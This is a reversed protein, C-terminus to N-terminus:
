FDLFRLAAGLPALQPATRFRDADLHELLSPMDIYPARSPVPSLIRRRVAPLAEAIADILPETRAPDAKSRNWCVEPPLVHRLAHRMLWRSHGPRRFQEPPLSLAFELLRRDLLPFRYEIGRKVSHANWEEQFGLRGDQLFRLQTRRVGITRAMPVVLPKARRAFEPNIFWRRRMGWGRRWRNLTPHLAPHLLGLVYVVLLRWAGDQTRCEAALKRWRGTLLLRQWHGRGNFSVCDDGGAGSLLVRVGMAAARHLTVEEEFPFDAGPLTGDCRLVDVVEQPGPAGHYVHLGEQACVADVLAYERAHEPKPQAGNLAPLWSFAIPPPRGQRRLERAALVAVSSSDLGGSLHAGVPGGRLRDRVARGYLDLFQEAFADDSAPRAAPIEEPRWHRAMRMRVRGARDANSGTESEVVLAHGAPLRRVARHFTRCRMDPRMSSLKAAVVAEDLATSVGPAALVAQVTSAFVFREGDLMYYFPRAGVPDRACFLAGSRRDWLAFAYDGVLRAPCAERWRVFAQLLLEADALGARLPPPVRLADCLADRDDLRADAAVVLGAEPDVALASASAGDDGTTAYRGGFRVADDTWVRREPGYDDLANLLADLAPAADPGGGLIGCIASMSM